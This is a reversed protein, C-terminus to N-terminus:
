GRLSKFDIDISGIGGDIDIKNFGTGYINKDVMLTGNITANGIGKDLSIQYDELTGILTLDMKGVGSDIKNNGILKAELLLKGVGMDLDLNHIDSEVISLDGAGGDIKANSLVILNNIDVKGAGLNLYLQKTSLSDINVKGAGAEILVGDFMFDNPIYIILENNNYNFFCNNKKETILMKNNDQKINIYKNNTEARLTTGQKITINSSSVNIDLINTANLVDISELKEKIIAEDNGFIKGIFSVGYMIGYIINFTLFIALAIALYKIIKQLNSM